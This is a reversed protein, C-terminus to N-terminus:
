KIKPEDTRRILSAVDRIRGGGTLFAKIIVEGLEIRNKFVIQVHKQKLLNVVNRRTCQLTAVVVSHAQQVRVVSEPEHLHHRADMGLDQLTTIRRWQWLPLRPGYALTFLCIGAM